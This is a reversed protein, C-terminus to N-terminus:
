IKLWLRSHQVCSLKTQNSKTDSDLGTCIIVPTYPMHEYAHGAPAPAELFPAPIYGKERSEETIKTNDIKYVNAAIISAIMLHMM